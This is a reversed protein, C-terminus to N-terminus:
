KNDRGNRKKWKSIFFPVLALIIPLIGIAWWDLLTTEDKPQEVIVVTHDVKSQKMMILSM